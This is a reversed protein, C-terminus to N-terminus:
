SVSRALAQRKEKAAQVKRILGAVAENNKQQSSEIALELTKKQELLSEKKARLADLEATDKAELEIKPLAKSETKSTQSTSKTLEGEFKIKRAVEM